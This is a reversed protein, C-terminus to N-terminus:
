EEETIQMFDLLQQKVSDDKFEIELSKAKDYIAKYATTPQAKMFASMFGAKGEPTEVIKDVNTSDVKVIHMGYQSAFWATTEGENVELSATIFEPVFQSDKDLFGVSGGKQASGTDDSLALAVENFAVGEQLQANVKDMKEKEADTPSQTNEMKVLIHSVLRPQKENVYDDLQGHEKAYDFVINDRKEMDEYLVNLEDVGSYGLAILEQNVQELGASGQQGSINAKVKTANEKSREAIEPTTEIASLVSREFLKYLESGGYNAKLDAAYDEVFYDKGAIESVVPKGDTKKGRLVSNYQEVSYYGIGIVLAVCIVVVFWYKKLNDIM